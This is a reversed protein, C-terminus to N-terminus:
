PDMYATSNSILALQQQRMGPWQVADAAPQGGLQGGEKRRDHDGAGGCMGHFRDYCATHPSSLQATGIRQMGRGVLSRKNAPCSFAGCDRASRM